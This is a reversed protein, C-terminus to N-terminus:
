MRQLIIGASSKNGVTRGLVSSCENSVAALEDPSAASPLTHLLSLQRLLSALQHRDIIVFFISVILMTGVNMEGERVLKGGYWFALCYSCFIVFYTMGIGGGTIMTKEIGRKKAAV